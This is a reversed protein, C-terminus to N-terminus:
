APAQVIPRLDWSVPPLTGAIGPKGEIEARVGSLIVRYGGFLDSYDALARPVTRDALELLVTDSQGGFVPTALFGGAEVTRLHLKCNGAAVTSVADEFRFRVPSKTNGVGRSVMLTLAFRSVTEGSTDFNPTVTLITLSPRENLWRRIHWPKAPWWPRPVRTTLGTWLKSLRQLGLPILVLGFLILAHQPSLKPLLDPLLGKAIEGCLMMAIGGLGIILSASNAGFVSWRNESM